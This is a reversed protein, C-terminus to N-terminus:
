GEKVFIEGRAHSNGLLGIFGKAFDSSHTLTWISTGNGHVVVPKVHLM